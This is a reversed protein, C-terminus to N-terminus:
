TFLSAIMQMEQNAVMSTGEKRLPGSVHPPLPIQVHDGWTPVGTILGRPFKELAFKLGGSLMYVNDYGRQVLTTAVKPARTEDEDYLIIIKKEKNKFALLSKSEFNMTRALMSTPYNEATIMHCLAFDDQERTDLLLYPEDQDTKCIGLNEPPLDDYLDMEGVGGIVSQLTSKPTRPRNTNSENDSVLNPPNMRDSLSNEEIRHMEEMTDLHRRLSAGTDVVPKVNKYRPNDPMKKNLAFDSPKKVHSM